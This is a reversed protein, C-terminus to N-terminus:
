PFKYSDCFNMITVRDNSELFQSFIADSSNSQSHKLLISKPTEFELDTKLLHKKSEGLYDNKIGKKVDEFFILHKTDMKGDM